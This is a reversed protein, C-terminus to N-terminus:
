HPTTRARELQAVRAEAQEARAREHAVQAELRTITREKEANSQAQWTMAIQFLKIMLGGVPLLIAAAVAVTVENM